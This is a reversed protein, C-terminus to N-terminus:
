LHSLLLRYPNSVNAENLWFRELPHHSALERVKANIVASENWVM